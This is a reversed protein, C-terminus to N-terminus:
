AAIQPRARPGNDRHAIHGEEDLQFTNGPGNLLPEALKKRGALGGRRATLLQAFGHAVSREAAALAQTREQNQFTCRQKANWRFSGDVRGCGDFAHM